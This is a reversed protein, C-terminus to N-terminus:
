ATIKRQERIANQSKKAIKFLNTYYGFGVISAGTVWAAPGAYFVSYYGWKDAFFIAIACRM